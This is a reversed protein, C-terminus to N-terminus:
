KSSVGHIRRYENIDCVRMLNFVHASLIRGTRVILLSPRSFEQVGVVDHTEDITFTAETYADTWMRRNGVAHSIHNPSHECDGLMM